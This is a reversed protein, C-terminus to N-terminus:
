PEDRQRMLAESQELRERVQVESQQLKEEIEQKHMLTQQNQLSVASDCSKMSVFGVAVVALVMMLRLM